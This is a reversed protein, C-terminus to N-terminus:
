SGVEEPGMLSLVLREIAANNKHRKQGRNHNPECPVEAIYGLSAADALNTADDIKGMIECLNNLVMNVTDEFNPNYALSPILFFDNKTPTKQAIAHAIAIVSTSEEEDNGLRNLNWFLSYNTGDAMTVSTKTTKLLEGSLARQIDACLNEKDDDLVFLAFFNESLVYEKKCRWLQEAKSNFELIQGQPSICVVASPSDQVISKFHKYSRVLGEVARKNEIAYRIRPVLEDWIDTGKVLYDEAGRGISELEMEKDAMSTLVVIPVEPSSNHIKEVTEIGSSDPLGLDLLISDFQKKYLQEIAISLSSATDIACQFGQNPKSLVKKVLQRTGADDEVLLINTPKSDM